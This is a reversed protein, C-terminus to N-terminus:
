RQSQGIADVAGQREEIIPDGNNVMRVLYKRVKRLLDSRPWAWALFRFLM